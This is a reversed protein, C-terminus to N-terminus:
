ACEAHAQVSVSFCFVVWGWLDKLSGLLVWMKIMDKVKYHECFHMNLEHKCNNFISNFQIYNFINTLSQGTQPLPFM